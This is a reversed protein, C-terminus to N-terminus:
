IERMKYYNKKLIIGGAIRKPELAAPIELGVKFDQVRRETYIFEKEQSSLTDWDIGMDKLKNKDYIKLVSAKFLNKCADNMGACKIDWEDGKIEIYTKQRVFLGYEWENEIKWANFHKDHITCGKLDKMPIDCHISDTDAYKFGHKNHGYYNSQAARITFCRAYATIASGIPIYGASKQMEKKTYYGIVDGDQYAIKYSSNTNTAFKGYLSNLYLKAIQRRGGISNEKIERYKNIYDDFLGIRKEFYFVKEIELDYVDYQELFLKYECEAMCLRVRGNPSNDSSELMVNGKFYITNKLQIFPLHNTKIEFRCTFLIFYFFHNFSDVFNDEIIPEGVPYYNGSESHMQSPYLSNVDATLGNECEIPKDSKVKYCWGGRYSKRIVDDISYESNYKYTSLDPFLEKFAYYGQTKKYSALACSGITLRTNTDQLVEELAEKIVYVDNLIYEKEKDTLKWGAYRVGEYEISLKQHKTQFSKGIQKVSLPLLKLSDRIDIYINNIKLTISYFIGVDNILYKYTNNEMDDVKIFENDILSQKLKIVFELYYLIFEGDFKLNHFYIISNEKLTNIYDWFCKISNGIYDNDAYLESLAVAWVETNTQNEYVTTEFDAVYYKNYKIM